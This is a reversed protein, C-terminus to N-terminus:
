DDDEPVFGFEEYTSIGYSTIFMDFLMKDSVDLYQNSTVWREAYEFLEADKVRDYGYIDIQEFVSDLRAQLPTTM